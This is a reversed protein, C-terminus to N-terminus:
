VSSFRFYYYEGEGTSCGFQPMLAQANESFLLDDTMLDFLTTNGTRTDFAVFVITGGKMYRFYIVHNHERYDHIGYSRTQRFFNHQVTILSNMDM